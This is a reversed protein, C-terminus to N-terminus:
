NSILPIPLVPIIRVKVKYGKVRGDHNSSRRRGAAVQSSQLRQEPTENKAKWLIHYLPSYLNELQKEITDKRRDKKAEEPRGYLEQLGARQATDRDAKDMELVGRVPDYRTSLKKWLRVANKRYLWNGLVPDRRGLWYLALLAIEDNNEADM